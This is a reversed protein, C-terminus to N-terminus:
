LVSESTFAKLSSLEEKYLKSLYRMLLDIELNVLLGEAKRGWDTVRLTHPILCVSFVREEVSAVTLSTGDLCISGKPVIFRALAEPAEFQLLASDPLLEKRLIKATGDIHGSVWHGELRDCARLSQELNVYDGTKWLSATTCALTERASEIDFWAAAPALPLAAPTELAAATGQAVVTHCIGACAISSGLSIQAAPYTTAIRFRRGAPITSCSIIKGVDTVLGTFM